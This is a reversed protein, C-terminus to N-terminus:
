TVAKGLLSRPRRAAVPKPYGQALRQGPEALLPRGSAKVSTKHALGRMRMCNRSRVRLFVNHGQGHRDLALTSTHTDLQMALGCCACITMALRTPVEVSRGYERCRCPRGFCNPHSPTLWGRESMRGLLHHFEEAAIAAIYQEACVAESHTNDRVAKGRACRSPAKGVAPARCHM